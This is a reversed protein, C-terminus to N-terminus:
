DFHQPLEYRHSGPEAWKLQVPWNDCAKYKPHVLMLTQEPDSMVFNNTLAYEDVGPFAGNVFIKGRTHPLQMARHFHGYVYYDPNSEDQKDLLQAMNALQRNLAHSPIGLAKDGGRLHDGHAAFFSSTQVTFRQFPQMNLNWQINKIDSTLGQVYAYLFMDLNSFRYKTPMKRQEGWRTNGTFYSVGNRRCMFNETATRVCWVTEGTSETTIIEATNGVARMMTSEVILLRWQKSTSSQYPSLTARLGHLACLGQVASLWEKSKGYLVSSNGRRTGDGDLLSNLFRKFQPTTMEWVWSPLEGKRLGTRELFERSDDATLSISHELCVGPSLAIGAIFAPRQRERVNSLPTFGAKDFATFINTTDKSQYVTVRDRKLSISGDTLVWACLELDKDPVDCSLEQNVFGAAPIYIPLQKIDSWRAENLMPHGPIKYYFRHHETGRFDFERNRISVMRDVQKETVVEKVPQWVATHGDKELGLCVDDTTVQDSRLWGRRTLIETEADVCHNGVCTEIRLTPVRSALARFFQAIAHGGAYFQGFKSVTQDMENGHFLGGDLMDGIMVVVLEQINCTTHGEIISTTTDQLLQLRDLFVGMNYEGFSLTQEPTVEKGIHTDSFLLVASQPSTSIINKVTNFNDPASNYSKPALSSIQDTLRKTVSESEILKTLKLELTKCRKAYYAESTRDIDEDLNTEALDPKIVKGKEDVKLVPPQLKYGNIGKYSRGGDVQITNNAANQIELDEKARSIAKAIPSELDKGKWTGDRIAAVDDVSICPDNLKLVIAANTLHLLPKVTDKIQESTSMDSRFSAM